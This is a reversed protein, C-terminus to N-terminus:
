ALSTLSFPGPETESFDMRGLVLGPSGKQLGVPHSRRPVRQPPVLNWSCLHSSITSDYILNRNERWHVVQSASGAFAFSVTTQTKIQPRRTTRVPRPQSPNRAKQPKASTKGERACGSAPISNNNQKAAGSFGGASGAPETPRRPLDPFPLNKLHCRRQRHTLLTSDM